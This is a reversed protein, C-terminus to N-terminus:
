VLILINMASLCDIIKTENACVSCLINQQVSAAKHRSESMDYVCADEGKARIVEVRYVNAQNIKYYIYCSLIFIYEGQAFEDKQSSDNGRETLM